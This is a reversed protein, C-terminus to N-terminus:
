LNKQPRYVNNIIGTVKLYNNLKKNIDVEKEYFILNGYYNLSNVQEIIKNDIVIKGRGPGWGKFAM